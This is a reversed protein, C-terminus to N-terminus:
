IQAAAVLMQVLSHQHAWGASHKCTVFPSTAGIDGLMGRDVTTQSRTHSDICVSQCTDSMFRFHADRRLM